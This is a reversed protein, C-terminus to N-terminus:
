KSDYTKKKKEESKGFLKLPSATGTHCAAVQRRTKKRAHTDKCLAGRPWRPLQASQSHQQQQQVFKSSSTFSQQQQQSSAWGRSTEDFVGFRYASLVVNFKHVWVFALQKLFEVDGICPDINKVCNKMRGYVSAGTSSSKEVKKLVIDVQKQWSSKLKKAYIQVCCLNGDINRWLPPFLLDSAIIKNSKHVYRVMISTSCVGWYHGINAGVVKM